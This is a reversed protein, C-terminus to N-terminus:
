GLLIIVGTVGFLLANAPTFSDITTSFNQNLGFKM